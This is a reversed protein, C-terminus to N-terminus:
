ASHANKDNQEKAWRLVEAVAGILDKPIFHQLEVEHYLTHALQIDRMIPINEERAIKMMELALQGKGKALVKPLHKEEAKYHLAVAYHTPNTVLVSAKRTNQITENMAIEQAIQKRHSKAEPSGETEKFERKVEDKTMKLEKTYQFRQFFFDAIAFFVYITAIIWCFRHLVLGSVQLVTNLNTQSSKLILVLAHELVKFGVFLLATVKLTNRGFEFFSKASFIRQFGKFPDIKEFKPLLPETSFVPGTQLYNALVGVVLVLILFPATLIVLTWIMAILYGGVAEEFPLTLVGIAITFMDQTHGIMSDWYIQFTALLGILLATSTTDTSKAVQGKERADRLKKATPQETKEGSPKEAM